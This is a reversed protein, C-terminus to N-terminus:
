LLAYLWQTVPLLLQYTSLCISLYPLTVVVVIQWEGNLQMSLCSTSNLKPLLTLCMLVCVKTTIKNIVGCNGQSGSRWLCCCCYRLLLRLITVCQWLDFNISPIGIIKHLLLQVACCIDIIIEGKSKACQDSRSSRNLTTSISTLSHTLSYCLLYDLILM